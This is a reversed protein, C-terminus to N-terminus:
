QYTFEVLILNNLYFLIYIIFLIFSILLTTITSEEFILFIDILAFLLM